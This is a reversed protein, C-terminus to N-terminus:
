VRARPHRVAILGLLGMACFLATAPEPVIEVEINDLAADNTALFQVRALNSFNPSVLTATSLNSYRISTSGGAIFYATLTIGIPVSSAITSPGLLISKLAFPNSSSTLTLTPSNSAADRLLRDAPTDFDLM